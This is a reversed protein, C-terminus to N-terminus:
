ALGEWTTITLDAARAIAPFDQHSSRTKVGVTRLGIRNATQIAPLIDEFVLCRALAEQARGVVRASDSGHAGEPGHVGGSGHASSPEYADGPGHASSPASQAPAALRDAARIATAQEDTLMGLRRAAELYIDPDEKTHREVECGHVRVPFLERIPLRPELALVVEPANTTALAYPIGAARLGRLYTAVGPRLEVRGRYLERGLENWEDCIQEVTDTLGYEEITYRAGDEFGLVSLREAYEPGFELGRREFFIRDVEKWIGSSEALTGDFDLIVAEVGAARLRNPRLDEVRLPRPPCPSAALARPPAPTNSAHQRTRSDLPTTAAAGAEGDRPPCAPVPADNECAQARQRTEAAQAAASGTPHSVAPFPDRM